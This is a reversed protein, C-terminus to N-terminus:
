NVTLLYLNYSNCSIICKIELLLKLLKKVCPKAPPPPLKKEVKVTLIENECKASIASVNSNDPLRFKRTFNKPSVRRELRTYKCSTSEGEIEEHGHGNKERERDAGGGEERKRKVGVSCSNEIVLIQGAERSRDANQEEMVNVQIDTKSLSSKKYHHFIYEKPTDLIDVAPYSGGAGGGTSILAARVKDRQDHDHHHHHHLHDHMLDFTGNPFMLSSMM